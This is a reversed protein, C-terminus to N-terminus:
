KDHNKKKATSPKSSLDEHNSHLHEVVQAVKGVSKQTSYKQSLTKHVRQRPQSQVTMRRIEVEQAALIIPM